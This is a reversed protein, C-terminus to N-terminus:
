VIWLLELNPSRAADIKALYEANTTVVHVTIQPQLCDEKVEPDRVLSPDLTEEFNNKVHVHVLAFQTDRNCTKM